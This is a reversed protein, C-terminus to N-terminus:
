LLDDEDINDEEKWLDEDTPELKEDIEEEEFNLEDLNVEEILNEEDQKSKKSM